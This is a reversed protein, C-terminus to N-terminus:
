EGFVIRESEPLAGYVWLFWAEDGVAWPVIQGTGLDTVTGESGAGPPCYLRVVPGPPQPDGELPAGGAEFSELWAARRAREGEAFEEAPVGEPVALARVQVPVGAQHAPYFLHMGEEAKLIERLGASRAFLFIEGAAADGWFEREGPCPDFRDLLAAYRRALYPLVAFDGGARARVHLCTGERRGSTLVRHLHEAAALQIFLGLPAGQPERGRAPGSRFLGELYSRIDLRAFAARLDGRDAEFSTVDRRSGDPASLVRPARDEIEFLREALAQRIGFLQTRLLTLSPDGPDQARIEGEVERAIEVLGQYFERLGERDPARFPPAGGRAAVFPLATVRPFLGPGRRFIEILLPDDPPIANLREAALLGVEKELSRKLARGGLEPDFGSEAIRDLARDSVHLFTQRRVFGDRELFRRVQLRAIRKVDELGLPGFDVIRDIRNVFEPRFFEEVAKRYTRARSEEAEGFGVTRRAEGAGLNSTMVVISASFDATRGWRDTLRGEGLVQLLLDHVSADAKEIEDFLLVSFPRHRVRETLQGEGGGPGGILRAVASEDVYENMDFRVLSEKDEFLFESLVKAAETKGVGTPGILLLSALPREPDGLRAKALHVTDVLCAAAGPQGVLREEVFGRVEDELLRQSPDFIRRALRSASRFAEDAQGVGVEGRRHKGAVQKMLGIVGGPLARRRPWARHVELLRGLAGDSIRCRLEQELHMRQRAAIRLASALGPEPIRIVRFLDAFGRDLEQVAKWAEPTAELLLGVQRKEIWPKLLDALTMENQSSKGVRFLAVPADVFLADPRRIGYRDRLRDRVFALIAEMRNQWMGVVRQGAIVRNPELHWVKPLRDAAAKPYAALHRSVAEHVASTKGVGSPGVFVTPVPDEEFLVGRIREVLEDMGFARLRQGPPLTALDRGVKEIEASGAAAPAEGLLAQFMEKASGSSFPFPGGEVHVTTEAATVFERDAALHSEPPPAEDGRERKERRLLHQVARDVAEEMRHRGHEAPPLAFLHGDFGPLCVYRLGEQDFWAATFSGEVTKQGSKFELRFARTELDPNFCFWLLRDLGSRDTKFSVFLNRVEQLCKHLADEFRRAVGEAGGALLPRVVFVRREDRTEARVLVPFELRVATM